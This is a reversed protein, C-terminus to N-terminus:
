NKIEKLAKTAIFNLVAETLNLALLADEENSPLPPHSGKKSAVNYLKSLLEGLSEVLESEREGMLGKKSLIKVGERMKEQGTLAKICSVLANRCNSKCDAYGQPTKTEFRERANKLYTMAEDLGIKSLRVLPQIKSQIYQNIVREIETKRKQTSQDLLFIPFGFYHIDKYGLENVCAKIINNKPISGNQRLDRETGSVISSTVGETTLVLHITSSDIAVFQNHNRFMPIIQLSMGRNTLISKSLNNFEQLFPGLKSSLENPLNSSVMAAM